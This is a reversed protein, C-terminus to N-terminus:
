LAALIECRRLDSLNYVVDGTPDASACRNIDFHRIRNGSGRVGDRLRPVEPAFDAYRESFDL